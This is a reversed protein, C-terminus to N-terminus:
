LDAEMKSEMEELDKRNKAVLILKIRQLDNEKQEALNLLEQDTEDKARDLLMKLLTDNKSSRRIKGLVLAKKRANDEEIDKKQLYHKNELDERAKLEEEVQKKLMDEEMDRQKETEEIELQKIRKEFENSTLDQKNLDEMKQKFEEEISKRNIVKEIGRSAYLNALTGGQEYLQRKMLSETADKLMEDLLQYVMLPMKKNSKESEMVEMIKEM